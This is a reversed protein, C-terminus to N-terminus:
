STSLSCYCITLRVEIHSKQISDDIYTEERHNELEGKEPLNWM